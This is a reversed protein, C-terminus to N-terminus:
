VIRVRDQDFGQQAKERVMLMRGGSGGGRGM